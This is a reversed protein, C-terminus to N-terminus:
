RGAPRRSRALALGAVAMAVLGVLIAVIGGGRGNGTGLGGDSIVVVVAGVAAGILGLLLAVVAERRGSGTGTRGAARTRAFWGVVVGVLAVVAALAAGIRGPSMTYVSAASHFSGHDAAPSALGIGGLPATAAATLLHRVSM